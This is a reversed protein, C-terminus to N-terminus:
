TESANHVFGVTIIALSTAKQSFTLRVLNWLNPGALRATTTTGVRETAHTTGIICCLGVPGNRMTSEGILWLTLVVMTAVAPQTM